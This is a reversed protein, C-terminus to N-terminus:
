VGFSSMGQSGSAVNDAASTVHTVIAKLRQVMVNLAQMLTDGASREKVEVTLNGDAMEQALRTVANMADILLNLNNKIENFDGKYEETMKDPIDGKAIRDLYETTVNIPAM